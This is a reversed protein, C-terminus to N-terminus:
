SLYRLSMFYLIQLDHAQIGDQDLEPHMTRRDLDCKPWIYLFILLATNVKVKKWFRAYVTCAYDTACNSWKGQKNAQKLELFM